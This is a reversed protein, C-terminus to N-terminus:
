SATSNNIIAREVIRAVNEQLQLLVAPLLVM